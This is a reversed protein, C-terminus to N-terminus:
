KAAAFIERDLQIGAASPALCRIQRHEIQEGAIESRGCNGGTNQHRAPAQIRSSWHQDDADVLVRGDPVFFALKSQSCISSYGPAQALRAASCSRTTTLMVRYAGHFADPVPFVKIVIAFFGNGGATIGPISRTSPPCLEMQWVNQRQVALLPSSPRLGPSHFRCPPILSRTRPLM